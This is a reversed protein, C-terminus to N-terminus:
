QQRLLSKGGLITSNEIVFILIHKNFSSSDFWFLIFYLMNFMYFITTTHKKLIELNFKKFM